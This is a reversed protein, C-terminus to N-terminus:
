LVANITNQAISSRSNRKNLVRVVMDEGTEAQVRAAIGAIKREDDVVLVNVIPRRQDEGVVNKVSDEVIPAVGREIPIVAEPGAEGVLASTPATVLGGAALQQQSIIAVQALGAATIIGALAIGVPPPPVELAQTAATATNVIATAIGAAKEIAFLEKNKEKGQAVLLENLNAALNGTASAFSGATSLQKDFEQKQIETKKEAFFKEIQVTEQGMQRAKDLARLRDRELIQSANLGANEFQKLFTKRIQLKRKESQEVKAIRENEAQFAELKEQNIFDNRIDQIAQLANIELEKLGENSRAKKLLAEDLEAVSMEFLERETKGLEESAMILENILDRQKETLRISEEQPEKVEDFISPFTESAEKSALSFEKTKEVIIGIRGLFDDIQETTKKISDKVADQAEKSNDLTNALLIVRNTLIEYRGRLEELKRDVKALQDPSFFPLGEARFDELRKIERGAKILQGTLIDLGAKESIKALDELAKTLEEVVPTIKPLTLQGFAIQLRDVALEMRVVKSRFAEAQKGFAEQTSGTRDEFEEQVRILEDWQKGIAALVGNLARVNPVLATIDETNGKTKERLEGLFRILGKAQLAQVNWELRLEKAKKKAEESPKLLQLFTARLAVTATRTDIGGKTLTALTAFLEDLEIGVSSASSIVTGIAVALESFTTKGLKVTQFLLDSVDIAKDVELGYANLITTIADVSTRTDSLGATAAIASVRLVEMAEASDTVGASFVQYLGASLDESSKLVESTMELVSDTLEDMNVTATDVLTAVNAMSKELDAAMGISDGIAKTFGTVAKIAVFFGLGTLMLKGLSAATSSMSGLVKDSQVINKNFAKTKKGAGTLGASFGSTDLGLRALLSGADFPM